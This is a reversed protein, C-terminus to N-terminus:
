RGVARYQRNGGFDGWGGWGGAEIKKVRAGTKALAKSSVSKNAQRTGSATLIKLCNKKFRTITSKFSIYSTFFLCFFLVFCFLLLLSGPFPRFLSRNFSHIFLSGDSFLSGGEGSCFTDM